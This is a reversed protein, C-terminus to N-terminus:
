TSPGSQLSEDLQLPTRPASKPEAKRNIVQILDGISQVESQQGSLVLVKDSAAYLGVLVLDPYKQLLPLAFEPMGFEMDFTVVDPSLAEFCHMENNSQRDMRIVELEPHEQLSAEIGLMSLSSGYLVVKRQKEM